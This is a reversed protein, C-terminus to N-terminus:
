KMGGMMSGMSEMFEDYTMTKYGKTNVNFVTKDFDKKFETAEMVMTFQGQVSVEFALPFGQLMDSQMGQAVQANSKIKETVWLTMAVEESGKVIMEAKHCTYGLIDRKQDKFYKIKIDNSENQGAQMKDLEEKTLDLKIKQGMMSLLYLNNQSQEDVLITTKSMGGMMSMMTLSKQPLFYVETFSNKFMGAMAALDPNDSKVDKVEMRIFGKDTVAQAMVASQFLLLSMVLSIGIIRLM